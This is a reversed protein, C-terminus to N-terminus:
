GSMVGRGKARVLAEVIGSGTKLMLEAPVRVENIKPLRGSREDPLTAPV